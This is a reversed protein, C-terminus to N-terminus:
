ILLSSKFPQKDDFAIFRRSFVYIAGHAKVTIFCNKELTTVKLNLALNSLYVDIKIVDQRPETM